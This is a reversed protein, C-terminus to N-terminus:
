AEFVVGRPQALRLHLMHQPRLTNRHFLPDDLGPGLCCRRRPSDFSGPAFFQPERKPVPAGSSHETASGASELRIRPDEM